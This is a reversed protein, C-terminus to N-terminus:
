DERVSASASANRPTPRSSGPQGLLEGFIELYRDAASSWSLEAARLRGAGIMQEGSTMTSCVATALAEADAKVVLGADGVVEPLAGRDTVVVPTGVAMAEVAPLGFGEYLSATVFVDAARYAHALVDDSVGELLVIDEDMRLGVDAAGRVTKARWEPSGATGIKLLQAHPYQDRVIRLAQLLTKMNKRPHESGVYILLPSGLPRNLLSEIYHRSGDRTGRFRLFQEGVGDHVVAIRDRLQPYRELLRAQTFRSVSIIRDAHRLGRLSQRITWATIWNLGARDLPCDVIGIDHVIVVSPLGFTNRLAQAGTLQPLLVAHAGPDPEIALPLNRLIPLPVANFRARHLSVRDGWHARLGFLVRGIGSHTSMSELNPVALRVAQSAWERETSEPSVVGARMVVV